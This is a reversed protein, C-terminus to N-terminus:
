LYQYTLNARQPWTGEAWTNEVLTTDGDEIVITRRIKWRVVTATTGGDELPDGNANHTFPPTDNVVKRFPAGTYITTTKTTGSTTTVIETRAMGETVLAALESFNIFNM